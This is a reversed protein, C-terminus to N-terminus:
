EIFDRIKFTGATFLAAAFLVIIFSMGVNGTDISHLAWYQPTFKSFMKISKPLFESPILSGGVFCTVTIIIQAVANIMNENKFIRSVFIGLSLALLTIFTLNLMIIPAKSLFDRSDILLYLLFITIYAASDIIFPAFLVGGIITGPRNSTTFSRKLTNENKLKFFEMAIGIASYLCSSILSNLIIVDTLSEKDKNIVKIRTEKYSLDQLSVEEGKNKLQSQMIMKNILSNALLEYNGYVPAGTLNYSVIQPKEGNEIMQSFNGPIEYCLSIKKKKVAELGSKKSYLKIPTSKQLEAIFEKGYVGSDSNIIATVSSKDSTTNFIFGMILTAAAPLLFTTIIISRNKLLRILNSKLVILFKM